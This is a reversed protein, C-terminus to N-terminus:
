YALHRAYKAITAASGDTSGGDIVIYELNSYNQSLVSEITRQLFDAQNFSPTVVTIRPITMPHQSRTPRRAPARM